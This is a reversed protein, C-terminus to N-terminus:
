EKILILKRLQKFIESDSFKTIREHSLEKLQKRLEKDNLGRLISSSMKEVDGVPTLIGYKGNDLIERPGVPCDTAVVVCENILAEVLVMGFGEEKSSHVFLDSNKMWIYPNVKTGLFVIRDELRLEKVLNELNHREPGDGIIYLKEDIKNKICKFALILSEIDKNKDLRSCSLIYKDKIYELDRSSMNESNIAERRIKEIDFPNYLMEVNPIDPFAEKFQKKMNETIVVVKQSKKFKKEYYHKKRMNEMNTHLWTITKKNALDCPLKCAFDIFVDYDLTELIKKINKRYSKRRQKMFYNYPIKYFFNKNKLKRYKNIKAIISKDVVFSYDVNEPIEKLLINGEDGNDENILLLVDFEKALYKVYQMALKESGGMILSDTNFVVKM